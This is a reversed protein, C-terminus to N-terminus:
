RKMLYLSFVAVSCTVDVAAIKNIGRLSASVVGVRRCTWCCVPSVLRSVPYRAVSVLRTLLINRCVLSSSMLIFVMMSVNIMYTLTRPLMM